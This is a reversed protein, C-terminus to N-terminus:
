YELEKLYENMKRQVEALEKLYVGTQIASIDKIKVQM